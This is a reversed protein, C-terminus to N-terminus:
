ALVPEERARPQRASIRSAVRCDEDANLLVCRMTRQPPAAAALSAFCQAALLVAAVGSADDDAGPAAGHTEEFHPDNASTSDLHATLLVLEASLGPLEAEVNHLTLGRHSFQLLRVQLRGQGLTELERALATVVRHNDGEMEAIHRSRIRQSDGPSLPEMGSYREVLSLIADSNIRSLAQREPDSLLENPEPGAVFQRQRAGIAPDLLLANPMLKLTHGHRAENFHFQGPSRGAPLAVLLGEETASLLLSAEDGVFFRRAAGDSSGFGSQKALDDRLLYFDSGNPADPSGLLDVTLLMNALEGATRQSTIGYVVRGNRDAVHVPVFAHPRLLDHATRVQAAPATVRVYRLTEGALPTQFSGLGCDRTNCIRCCNRSSRTCTSRSSTFPQPRCSLRDWRTVWILSFSRLEKRCPIDGSQAAQRPRFKRTM